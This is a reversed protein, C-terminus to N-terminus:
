ALSPVQPEVTDGRTAERGGIERWIAVAERRATKDWPALRVVQGLPRRRAGPRGRHGWGSGNDWGGM